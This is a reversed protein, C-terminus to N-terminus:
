QNRGECDQRSRHVGDGVDNEGYRSFEATSVVDEGEYVVDFGVVLVPAKNVYLVFSLKEAEGEDPASHGLVVVEDTIDLVTWDPTPDIRFFVLPTLPTFVDPNTVSDWGDHEVYDWPGPEPAIKRVCTSHHTSDFDFEEGSTRNTFTGLARRADDGQLMGSYSVHWKTQPSLSSVTFDLSPFDLMNRGMRNMIGRAM